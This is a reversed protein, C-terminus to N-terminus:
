KKFRASNLYKRKVALKLYVHCAFVNSLDEQALAAIRAVFQGKPGIVMEMYQEKPCFINVVINLSGNDNLEWLDVKLELSYPVEEKVQDLLKERIISVAIEKPNQLTVISKHYKWPSPKATQVLYNRLDDVGDGTLASIMFVRSFYPWSLRRLISLDSLDEEKLTENKKLRMNHYILQKIEEETNKLRDRHTFMESGEISKGEICCGTLNNVIDFLKQKKKVQDVKNLVLISKTDRHSNLIKWLDVSLCQRYIKKGVDVLIVLLDAVNASLNPHSLLSHELHHEICHKIRIVGPSDLIEVQTSEHNFVGIVNKRTTHVRKSVSSIKQGILQNTLTSKGSNPLGIIAIKNLKSNEPQNATLLKQSKFDELNNPIIRDIIQHCLLRSQLKLLDQNLRLLTRVLDLRSSCISFM